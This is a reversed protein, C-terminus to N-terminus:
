PIVVAAVMGPNKSTDLQMAQQQFPVGAPAGPAGMIALDDDQGRVQAPAGIAELEGAPIALDDPDAKGDIDMVTLDDCPGSHGIGPDAPRVHAVHHQQGHLRAETVDASGM